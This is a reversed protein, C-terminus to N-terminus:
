KQHSRKSSSPLSQSIRLTKINARLIVNSITWLKCLVDITTADIKKIGCKSPVLKLEWYGIQNELETM